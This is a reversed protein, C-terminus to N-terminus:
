GGDFCSLFICVKGQQFMLLVPFKPQSCVSITQHVCNQKAPVKKQRSFICSFNQGGDWWNCLFSYKLFIMLGVTPLQEELGMWAKYQYAFISYKVSFRLIESDIFKQREVWLRLKDRSSKKGFTTLQYWVIDPTIPSHHIYQIQKSVFVMDVIAKDEIALITEILRITPM